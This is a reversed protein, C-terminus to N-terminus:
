AAASPLWVSFKTGVGVETQLDIRGLHKDVIKRVIDLGLGSGEGVPKTTFFPEFIRSRINEPIGHGNDSISVLVGDDQPEVTVTLIGNNKMAQLANHILNTWVQNIEDERCLVAPVDSYIRNVEIGQKIQNNYITLVTELGDKVNAARMEGTHDTHSFSKLAFVIKAAREVAININATGSIITGIQNAAGLIDMSLSHGVVSAFRMPDSRVGLSLLIDAKSQAEEIGGEVLAAYL